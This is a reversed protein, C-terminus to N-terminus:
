RRERGLGQTTSRVEPERSTPEKAAPHREDISVLDEMIEGVEFYNRMYGGMKQTRFQCLLNSKSGLKEGPKPKVVIQITRGGERTTYMVDLDLHKMADYLDDTYRMVKYNGAAVKDDLKVIVVDELKEGRAFINAAKSLRKVISAEKAPGQNEVLEKTQPYIVKDYIQTCYNDILTKKDLTPDLLSRYPTIDIGLGVSFFQQINQFTLGSYQGLSKSDAKISLLNIKKGDVALIMDAKTGKADTSGDSIVQITNNNHDARVRQCANAVGGSGNAFKVASNLVATLDPALKGTSLQNILEQASKGPVVAKFSVTDEKSNTEPYNIVKTLEFTYSSQQTGQQLYSMVTLAQQANIDGGLNAFKSFVAVGMFLEALHGTNYAKKVEIGTFEPGKFLNGWSITRGDTLPVKKPLLTTINLPDALARQLAPIISKDIEVADGLKARDETDVAVPTGTGILQILVELYKGNHKALEAKALSTEVLNILNRM